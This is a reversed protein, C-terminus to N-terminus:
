FQHFFLQLHLNKLHISDVEQMTNMKQTHLHKKIFQLFNNKITTASQMTNICYVMESFPEIFTGINMMLASAVGFTMTGNKLSVGVLLLCIFTIIMNPSTNLVLSLSKFRGYTYETNLQKDLHAENEKCFAQKTRPNVWPYGGLLNQSFWQFEKM